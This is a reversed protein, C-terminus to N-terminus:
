HAKLSSVLHDRAPGELYPFVASGFTVNGLKPVKAYAGAKICNGEAIIQQSLGKVSTTSCTTAAAHAVTGPSSGEEAPAASGGALALLAFPLAHLRNATTMDPWRSCCRM